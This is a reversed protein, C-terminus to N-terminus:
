NPSYQPTLQLQQQHLSLSQNDQRNKDFNFNVTAHLSLNFNINTMVKGNNHVNSSGPHSKVPWLKDQNVLGRSHHHDLVSSHYQGLDAAVAGGKISHNRSALSNTKQETASGGYLLNRTGGLNM